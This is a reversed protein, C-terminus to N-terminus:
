NALQQKDLDYNLELRLYNCERLFSELKCLAIWKLLENTRSEFLLVRNKGCQGNLFWKDTLRDMETVLGNKIKGNWGYILELNLCGCELRDMGCDIRSPNVSVCGCETAQRKALHNTVDELPSALATIFIFVFILLLQNKM